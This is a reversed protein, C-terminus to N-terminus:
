HGDVFLPLTQRADQVQAQAPPRATGPLAPFYAQAISAHVDILYVQLHDILQHLGQQDLEAFSAQALFRHAGALTDLVGSSRPLTRLSLEVQQLCFRCSRPFQADRLAFDLSEVRSVRARRTQRYMHQGSLSRLVSIWQITQFPDLDSTAAPLIQASRVDVIRSTMDARELNRGVLMFTYADTRSMTGELVGALTQSVVVIRKLFDHRTRRNLGSPLGVTFEQFFENLIEWAETPLIDRLTRANERAVNLSASISGPNQADALLFQVIEREDSRRKQADFEARSGTIDILPLWGLAYGRQLDLLLNANVSILRATNEARELYRALWYINEAVRALM